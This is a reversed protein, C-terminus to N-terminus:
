ATKRSLQLWAQSLSAQAAPPQVSIRVHGPLGFSAADRLKIGQARLDHLAQELTLTAPLAPRACFFNAHSPLYRWGWSECLAIQRAKWDRLTALSRELWAQAELSTWAQLMAVGHAGIPWSPCLAELADILEDSGMPAIAYAARVGTLGLAKNPTYLQWVTQLQADDLGLAGSLRLPEYARDLVTVAASSATLAQLGAHATGLPSSPDCAWRLAAGEPDSTPQLGHARAAQAYDGYSHPPLWVGLRGQRAVVATVRFIFESASAALVIRQMPLGHFTALQERLAIYSADPYQTAEARAVAALAVPCPGCANSNTSFDHLPVGRQDPGGHVRGSLLRGATM